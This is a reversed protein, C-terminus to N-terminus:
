RARLTEGSSTMSATSARTSETLGASFAHTVTARSDARASARRAVAASRRRPASGGSCPTGTDILSRVGVLPM